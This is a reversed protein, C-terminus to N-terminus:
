KESYDEVNFGFCLKIMKKQFWNFHKDTYVTLIGVREGIKICSGNRIKPISVSSNDYAHLEKCEMQLGGKM